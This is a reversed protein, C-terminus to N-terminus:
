QPVEKSGKLTCPPSACIMTSEKPPPFNGFAAILKAKSDASLAKKPWKVQHEILLDGYVQGTGDFQGRVPMGEGVVRRVHYPQTVSNHGFAIVHNDMHSVQHKFGLLAEKLTVEEVIKLDNPNGEVSRKFRSNSEDIRLRFSLDGAAEEPDEVNAEGPFTLEDGDVMGAEIVCELAKNDEVIGSGGCTPCHHKFTVGKGRCSDCPQQMQVTMPGMRMPVSVQGQGNCERCRTVKGGKAGTGRCDECVKQKGSLQASRTAGTYVDSLELDLNVTM